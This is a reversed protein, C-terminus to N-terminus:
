VIPEDNLLPKPTSLEATDKIKQMEVVTKELEAKKEDAIKKADFDVLAKQADAIRQEWEAITTEYVVKTSTTIEVCQIKDEVKIWKKETTEM